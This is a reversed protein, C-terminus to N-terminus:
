LSYLRFCNSVPYNLIAFRDQASITAWISLTEEVLIHATYFRRLNADLAIFLLMDMEAELVVERAFDRYNM